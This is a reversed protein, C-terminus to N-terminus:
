RAQRRIYTRSDDVAAVFLSHMTDFTLMVPNSLSGNRNKLLRIECDRHTKQKHEDMLRRAEKRQRTEPVGDLNDTMHAGQLGLLVDSGYEIAGSEKFAELTVGESYSARNLSSIALVCARMDRALHRLDMVNRDIAQRETMRDSAPALLQLYDVVVVPPMGHWRMLSEAAQRIMATTPQEDKEMMWMNPAVNATYHECAAAFAGATKVGWRNRVNSRQVEAATATVGSVQLMLRSVSKAVLEHRGQEVTVFLVPRGSEAIQDAIQLALTTKGFSSVGGLTVLGGTPLGGGLADDLSKLGTPIPEMDFDGGALELTVGRTDHVGLRKLAAANAARMDEAADRMADGQEHELWARLDDGAPLRRKRCPVGAAECAAAVAENAEENMAAIVTYGNQRADLALQDVDDAVIAHYMGADSVAREDQLTAVVFRPLPVYPM